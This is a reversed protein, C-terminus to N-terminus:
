PSNLPQLSAKLIRSSKETLKFRDDIRWGIVWVIKDGSVLVRVKEKETQSAKQDILFRAVKKKKGLGLPYFYDGPQTKRVLLPLTIKHMDFVEQDTAQPKSYLSHPETNLLETELVLTKDPMKITVPFEQIVQLQVVGTDELAQLPALILWARNKIVRHTLSDVHHGSESDILRIVEEVQPSSFSYKKLISWLITKLPQTIKLLRIPLHVEEGKKHILKKHHRELSQQMLMEAERFRQLNEGMAKQAGPHVEELVPLVKLRIFNRTYKDTLNSSDEVYAINNESAYIELESRRVELLPRIVDGQKPLMGRLGSLGTGRLLHHLSTEINDDLHHATIIGQLGKERLLERFWEYRLERAAEQTSIKKAKAFEETDFRKVHLPLQLERALNAVFEEDRLSEGGRLQFNAHALHFNTGYIKLVHALVVSDLGGSIALLYQKGAHLLAHLHNFQRIQQLLSSM